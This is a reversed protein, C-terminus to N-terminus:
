LEPKQVILEFPRISRNTAREAQNYKKASPTHVIKAESGGLARTQGSSPFTAFAFVGRGAPNTQDYM